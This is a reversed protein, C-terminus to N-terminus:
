RVAVEIPEARGGSRLNRRSVARRADPDLRAVPTDREGDVSILVVRMGKLTEVESSKIMALKQLTTPCADPCHTFGFFVFAPAVEEPQGHAHDDAVLGGLRAGGRVDELGAVRGVVLPQDVEARDGPAFVIRAAAEVDAPEIPRIRVAGEDRGAGPLHRAIPQPATYM